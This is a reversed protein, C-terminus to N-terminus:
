EPSGYHIFPIIEEFLSPMEAPDWTSFDFQDIRDGNLILIFYNPIQRKAEGFADRDTDYDITEDYDPNTCAITAAELGDIQFYESECTYGYFEKGKERNPVIDALSDVSPIFDMWWFSSVLLKTKQQNGFPEESQDLICSYTSGFDGPTEHCTWAQPLAFRADDLATTWGDVEDAPPDLPLTRWGEPLQDIGELSSLTATPRGPELVVQAEPLPVAAMDSFTISTDAMEELPAFLLRISVEGPEVKLKRVEERSGWLFLFPGSSGGVGLADESEGDPDPGAIEVDYIDFTAISDATNVLLLDVVLLNEHGGLNTRQYDGSPCTFAEADEPQRAFCDLSANLTGPVAEDPLVITLQRKPIIQVATVSLDWVSTPTPTSTVTPSPPPETETPVPTETAPPPVTATPLPQAAAQCGACVLGIALLTLLWNLTKM